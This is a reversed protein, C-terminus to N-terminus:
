TDYVYSMKQDEPGIRALLMRTITPFNGNRAQQDALVTKNRAVLAYIIPM